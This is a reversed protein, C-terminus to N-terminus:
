RTYEKILLSTPTLVEKLEEEKKNQKSKNEKFEKKM